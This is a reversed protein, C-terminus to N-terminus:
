NPLSGSLRLLLHEAKLIASGSKDFHIQRKKETVNNTDNYCCLDLAPMALPATGHISATIKGINQL